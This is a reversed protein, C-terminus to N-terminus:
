ILYNDLINVNEARLSLRVMYPQDLVVFNIPFVPCYPSGNMSSHFQGLPPCFFGCEGVQLSMDGLYVRIDFTDLIQSAREIM